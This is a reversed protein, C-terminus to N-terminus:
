FFMHPTALGRSLSPNLRRPLLGVQEALDIQPSSVVTAKRAQDRNIEDLVDRVLSEFDKKNQMGQDFGRDLSRASLM